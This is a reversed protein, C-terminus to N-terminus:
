STWLFSELYQETYPVNQWEFIERIYSLQNKSLLKTRVAEKRLEEIKVIIKKKNEEDKSDLYKDAFILLVEMFMQRRKNEDFHLPILNTPCPM